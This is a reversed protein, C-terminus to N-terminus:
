KKSNEEFNEPSFSPLYKFYQSKRGTEQYLNM